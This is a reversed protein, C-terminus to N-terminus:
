KEKGLNQNKPATERKIRSASLTTVPAHYDLCFAVVM